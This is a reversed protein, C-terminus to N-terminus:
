DILRAVSALLSDRHERLRAAVRDGLVRASSDEPQAAALTALHEATQGLAEVAAAAASIWTRSPPAHPGSLDAARERLRPLWGPAPRLIARVRQAPTLPRRALCRGEASIGAGLAEVLASLDTSVADVTQRQRLNLAAAEADGLPCSLPRVAAQTAALIAQFSAASERRISRASLAKVADASLGAPIDTSILLSDSM